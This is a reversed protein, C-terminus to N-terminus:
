YYVNKPKCDDYWEEVSTPTVDRGHWSLLTTHDGHLKDGGQEILDILLQAGDGFVGFGVEPGAFHDGQPQQM